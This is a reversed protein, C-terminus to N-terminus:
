ALIAPVREIQVLERAIAHHQKSSNLTHAVTVDKKGLVQPLIQSAGILEFSIENLVDVFENRLIADVRWFFLQRCEAIAVVDFLHRFHIQGVGVYGTHDPRGTVTEVETHHPQGDEVVIAIRYLLASDSIIRTQIKHSQGPKM